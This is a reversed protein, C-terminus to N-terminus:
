AVRYNMADKHRMPSWWQGSKAGGVGFRPEIKPAPREIGGFLFSGECSGPWAGGGNRLRLYPCDSRLWGARSSRRRRSAILRPYLAKAPSATYPCDSRL